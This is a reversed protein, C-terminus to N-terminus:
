LPQGKLLKPVEGTQGAAEKMFFTKLQGLRDVTRLGTSRLMRLAMSDNSFLTNIAVASMASTVSDFRRWREYRKLVSLSGIDLGLRSADILTEALAAVDKLGHNLGQGAIWHLGHAADGILVFRPRVFDRAISMTLPYAKPESILMLEGLENGFRLSLEGLIAESDQALIRKAVDAHETWVVSVRNGTMPLIAFPGAPLFHQRATGHHPREIGATAVIGVKKSPWVTTRIGAMEALKSNRGDAAALLKATLAAGSGLSVTVEAERTEFSSVSDPAFFRVEPTGELSALLAPLLDANEIIYATPEGGPAEAADLGILAPRVPAELSSDTLEIRLIPEAKGALAPWVGIAELMAKVSATLAVTRGDRTKEGANLLPRQEVIAIRYVGPAMACLARALALGVFSGGCIVIDFRDIESASVAFSGQDQELKVANM